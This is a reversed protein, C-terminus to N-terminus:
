AAIGDRLVEAVLGRERAALEDWEAQTLVLPAIPALLELGVRGGEDLALAREAHTARDLLVLVDIDSDETAEGRAHSGFLTMRRVRGPLARELRARYRALVDGVLASVMTHSTYRLRGSALEAIGGFIPATDM